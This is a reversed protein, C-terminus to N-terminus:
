LKTFILATFDINLLMFLNVDTSGSATDFKLRIRHRTKVYHHETSVLETLVSARTKMVNIDTGRFWVVNPLFTFFAKVFEPLVRQLIAKQLV